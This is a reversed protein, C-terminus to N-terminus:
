VSYTPRLGMKIVDELDMIKFYPKNAVFENCSNTVGSSAIIILEDAGFDDKLGNLERAVSVGVPYQYHKCQVITKKGEKSMIIDVGGDSTRRTVRAKYGNLRFIKATEEEFDWGDLTWWWGRDAWRSDAKECTIKEQSFLWSWYVSFIILPIPLTWLIIRDMLSIMAFYTGLLIPVTILLEKLRGANYAKQIFKLALWGAFVALAIFLENRRKM